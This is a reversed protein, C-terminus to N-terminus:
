ATVPVFIKMAPTSCFRVSFMIWRTSALRGPPGSLIASEICRADRRKSCAASSSPASQPPPRKGAIDALQAQGFAAVDGFSLLSALGLYCQKIRHGLGEEGAVAQSGAYMALLNKAAM